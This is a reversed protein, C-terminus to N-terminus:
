VHVRVKFVKNKYTYNVLFFTKPCSVIATAGGVEQGFVFSRYIKFTGREDYNHM